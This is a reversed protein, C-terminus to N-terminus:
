VSNNEEYCKFKNQIFSSEMLEYLCRDGNPATRSGIPVKSKEEVFHAGGGRAYFGADSCTTGCQCIVFNLYSIYIYHSITITIFFIVIVHVVGTDFRCGWFM